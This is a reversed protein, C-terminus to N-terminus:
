ADRKKNNKTATANTKPICLKEYLRDFHEKLFALKGNHLRLGEWVGDGLLFGSDLVSIKAANRPLLEGNVYIKINQNREDVQHAHSGSEM